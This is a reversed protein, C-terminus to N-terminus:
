TPTNYAVENDRASFDLEMVYLGKQYNDNSPNYISPIGGGCIYFSYLQLQTLPFFDLKSKLFFRRRLQVDFSATHLLVLVM